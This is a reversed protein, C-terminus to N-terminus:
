PQVIGYSIPILIQGLSTSGFGEIMTFAESSMMSGEVHGGFRQREITAQRVGEFDKAARIPNSSAVLRNVVRHAGSAPVWSEWYSAV